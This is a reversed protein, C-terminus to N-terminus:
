LMEYLKKSYKRFIWLGFFFHIMVILVSIILQEPADIYNYIMTNRLHSIVRALPNLMYYKLYIEPVFSEHYIIPSIWFGILLLFNWVHVIDKFYLYITSVLFSTSIVLLFLLGFYFLSIIRIPTFLDIKFYIMMLILILINVFFAILSAFNSGLIVVYIPIRIKKLLDFSNVLSNISASTAESFFNWVIIGLLLFVQYHEFDLKIVISFVLYLTILMLIPNFLMWLYGFTTNSYKLKLEKLTLQYIMQISKVSRM